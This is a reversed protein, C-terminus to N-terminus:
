SGNSSALPRPRQWKCLRWDLGLPLVVDPLVKWRGIVESADTWEYDIAVLDTESILVTGSPMIVYYQAWEPLKDWQPALDNYADVLERLHTQAACMIDGIPEPLFALAFEIVRITNTM